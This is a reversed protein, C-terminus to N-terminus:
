FEEWGAGRLGDNYGMVAKETMSIKQRPFAMCLDPEYVRAMADLMDDHKSRPFTPMESKLMERVLDWQKGEGDIYLLSEPFYWRGNEMDPVLVSVRATKSKQGGLPILHFNYADERKKKEIYHIDSQMSYKEYGVKPPKGCLANWKRHLVFLMDIRETPNLRDRIIDLLYYNNDTGLGVVMM